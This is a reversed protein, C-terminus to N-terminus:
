IDEPHNLHDGPSRLYTQYPGFRIPQCSEWILTLKVPKPFNITDQYERFWNAQNRVRHISLSDRKFGMISEPFPRKMTPSFDDELTQHEYISQSSFRRNTFNMVEEETFLKKYNWAETFGQHIPRRPFKSEHCFVKQNNLYEGPIPGIDNTDGFHGTQFTQHSEPRVMSKTVVVDGGDQCPKSRSVKYGAGLYLLDAKIRKQSELVKGQYQKPKPIPQADPPEEKLLYSLIVGRSHVKANCRKQPQHCEVSRTAETRNMMPASELPMSEADQLKMSQTEEKQATYEGKTGSFIECERPCSLHMLRKMSINLVHQDFIFSVMPKPIQVILQESKPKRMHSPEHSVKHDPEKTLMYSENKSGTGLVCVDTNADLSPTLCKGQHSVELVTKAKNLMMSQKTDQVIKQDRVLNVGPPEDGKFEQEKICTNISKSLSLHMMCTTSSEHVLNDHTPSVKAKVQMTDLMPKAKTRILTNKSVSRSIETAKTIDSKQDLCHVIAHGQNPQFKDQQLLGRQGEQAVDKRAEKSGKLDRWTKITPEKYFWRDDVEQVWWKFAEDKLQDIAYSLREKKQINNYHFWKDLNREWRLYGEKGSFKFLEVKDAFSNYDFRSNVVHHNHTKSIPTHNIRSPDPPKPEVYVAESVDGFRRKGPQPRQGLTKTGKELRATENKLKQLAAFQQNLTAEMTQGQEKVGM